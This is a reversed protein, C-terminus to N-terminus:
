GRDIILGGFPTLFRSASKVGAYVLTALLRKSFIVLNHYWRNITEQLIWLM